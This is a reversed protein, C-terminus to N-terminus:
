EKIRIDKFEVIAIFTRRLMTSRRSSLKANVLGSRV